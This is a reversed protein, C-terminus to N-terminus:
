AAAATAAAHRDILAHSMEWQCRVIKIRNGELAAATAGASRLEQRERVLSYHRECLAEVSLRSRARRIRAPIRPRLSTASM